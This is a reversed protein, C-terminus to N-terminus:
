ADTKGRYELQGTADNREYLTWDAHQADERDAAEARALIDRGFTTPEESPPALLNLDVALQALAWCAEWCQKNIELLREGVDVPVVATAGHKQFAVDSLHTLPDSDWARHAATDVAGALELSATSAEIISRYIQAVVPTVNSCREFTESM